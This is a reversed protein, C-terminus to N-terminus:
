QQLADLDSQFDEQNGRSEIPHYVLCDDAFLRVQSSVVSPIENIHLPFLLPGPVNAKPVGSNLSVTGPRHEEVVMCQDNSKLFGFMWKLIDGQIGYFELKQMLRNQPVTDFAKSFDLIALDVQVRRGWYSM